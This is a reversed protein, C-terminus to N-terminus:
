SFMERFRMVCLSPPNKCQLFLYVDHYVKVQFDEKWPFLVIRHILDKNSKILLLKSNRTAQRASSSGCDCGALVGVSNAAWIGIRIGGGVCVGGEIIKGEVGSVVGNGIHTV